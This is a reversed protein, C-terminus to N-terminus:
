SSRGATSRSCRPSAQAAPLRGLGDVVFTSFAALVGAVMGCGLATALAGAFVLDSM